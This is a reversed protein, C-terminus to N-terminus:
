RYFPHSPDFSILPALFDTSTLLSIDSLSPMAVLTLNLVSASLQIVFILVTFKLAVCEGVNCFFTHTVSVSPNIVM